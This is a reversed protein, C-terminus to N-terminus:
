AVYKIAYYLTNTSDPSALAKCLYKTTDGDTAVVDGDVLGAKPSYKWFLESQYVPTMNDISNCIVPKVYYVKGNGTSKMASLDTISDRWFMIGDGYDRDVYAFPRLMSRFRYEDYESDRTYNTWNFSYFNSLGDSYEKSGMHEVVTIFSQQYSDYAHPEPAGMLAFGTSDIWLYYTIQLTSLDADAQHDREAEFMIFSQNDKTGDPYTHNISDWTACFSLRLGKGFYYNGSSNFIHSANIAELAIWIDDSDGTYKLCRRANNDTRDSTNWTTDGDTWYSSSAILGDAIEDIIDALVKAGSTFGM